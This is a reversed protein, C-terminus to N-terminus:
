EGPWNSDERVTKHLPDPEQAHRGSEHDHIAGWKRNLVAPLGDDLADEDRRAADHPHLHREGPHRQRDGHQDEHRHRM